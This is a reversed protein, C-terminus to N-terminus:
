GAGAAVAADWTYSLPPVPGSALVMLTADSTWQNNFTGYAEGTGMLL